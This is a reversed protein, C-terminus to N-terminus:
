QQLVVDDVVCKISDDDTGAAGPQTRSKAESLLAQASRADGLKEGGAGVCNSCLTHYVLQFPDARRSADYSDMWWEIM